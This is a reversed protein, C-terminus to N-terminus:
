AANWVAWAAPKALPATVVRGDANHLTLHRSCSSCLWFVERHRNESGAWSEGPGIPQPRVTGCELVFLKGEHLFRFSAACAPNACKSLM